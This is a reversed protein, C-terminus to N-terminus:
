QKRARLRSAVALLGAFLATLGFAGMAPVNKSATGVEDGLTLVVEYYSTNDTQVKLTLQQGVGPTGAITYRVPNLNLGGLLACNGTQDVCSTVVGGDFRSFAGVGITNGQSLPGGADFDSAAGGDSQPGSLTIQAKSSEVQIVTPGPGDIISMNTDPLGILADSINSGDFTITGYAESGNNAPSVQISRNVGWTPNNVDPVNGFFSGDDSVAKFFVLGDFTASFLQSIDAAEIEYTTSHAHSSILLAGAVGIISKKFLNM